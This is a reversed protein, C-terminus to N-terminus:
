YLRSSRCWCVLQAAFGLLSRTQVAFRICVGFRRRVINPWWDNKQGFHLVMVSAVKTYFMEWSNVAGANSRIEKSAVAM